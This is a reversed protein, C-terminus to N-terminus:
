LMLLRGDGAGIRFWMFGMHGGNWKKFFWRLIVRGDISLDELHNKGETKGV